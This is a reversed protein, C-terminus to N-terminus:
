LPGFTNVSNASTIKSNAPITNVCELALLTAYIVQGNGDPQQGYVFMSLSLIPTM